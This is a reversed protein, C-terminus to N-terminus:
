CGAFKIVGIEFNQFGHILGKLFYFKTRAITKLPLIICIHTDSM